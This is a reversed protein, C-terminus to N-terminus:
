NGPRLHTQESSKTLWASDTQPAHQVRLRRTARTLAPAYLFLGKLCLLKLSIFMSFWVTWLAPGQTMTIKPALPSKVLRLNIGASQLKACAFANGCFKAMMPNEDLGIDVSAKLDCSVWLM